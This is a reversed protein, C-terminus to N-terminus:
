MGKLPPFPAAGLSRGEPQHCLTRKPEITIAKPVTSIKARRAYVRSHGVRVSMKKKPNM